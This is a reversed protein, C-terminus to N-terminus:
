GEFFFSDAKLFGLPESILRQLVIGSTANLRQVAGRCLHFVGKCPLRGMMDNRSAISAKTQTKLYASIPHM